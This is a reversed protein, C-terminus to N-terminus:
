RGVVGTSNILVDLTQDLATMFRSAANYASMFQMMNSAEEDLSVGSMEDRSNHIGNLVTVNSKLAYKNHYSDNALTTSVHNMYDAFTNNKLNGLNAVDIGAVGNAATLIDVLNGTGNLPYTAKMAELMNLITDTPNKTGNAASGATSVHVTGNVWNTNIGINAATIDNLGNDTKNAILYQDEPKIGTKDNKAGDINISNIVDAFAKALNNLEQRYYEYGKVDNVADGTGNKWLMDLMAQISGSEDPLQLGGMTGTAPDIELDISPTNGVLDGKCGTFTLKFGAPYPPTIDAGTNDKVPTYTLKGINDDNAGETGEVLTVRKTTGDQATYLMEVRLDDPWEKKFMPNGNSDVHYTESLDETPTADNETGNLIGDHMRDKYYTVEIPIYSSLEDLLVNREDMLELSQQGLIQNQKIQRNLSGIKQLIDNVTEIAGNETTDKGTLRMYEQREAETIKNDADNLLNTLAKIRSRLESEYIADNVKSEDQMNILSSKIDDFAKTIGTITSEDFIKALSDLSTQLSDTYSSKYMQSRYQADLYPDRIQSVKDMHVGFGVIIESGNMYNSVPTRYNLSSTELQQRTYGVTNMNSLNQGIIDLRKQNAQLASLATSFGAFSARVM